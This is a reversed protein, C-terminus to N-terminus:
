KSTRKNDQRPKFNEQGAEVDKRRARRDKSTSKGVNGRHGEDEKKTGNKLIVLYVDQGLYRKPCDVKAGTGYWTVKSKLFGEINKLTIENTPQINKIKM